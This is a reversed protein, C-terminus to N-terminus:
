RRKRMLKWATSLIQWFTVTGIRWATILAAFNGHRAGVLLAVTQNQICREKALKQAEKSLPNDKSNLAVQDVSFRSEYHTATYKELQIEQGEHVRWWTLDRPCVVVPFHAGLKLFAEVDGIYRAGSFRGMSEFRERHLIAGLPGIGFLGTGLFHKEYAQEPTLEFPFARDQPAMASLGLGAAPFTDMCRVMVELGHPYILDDSDVYKLYHGSAYSAAKNRNPYDGLNTENRYVRIRSDQKAYDLAVQYSADTSHDDVIIYEFDTHTSALVSEICEALYHQRNYVTTLVSVKPPTM